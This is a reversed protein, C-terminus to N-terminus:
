GAPDPTLLEGQMRQQQQVRPTQLLPKDPQVQVQLKVLYTVGKQDRRPSKNSGTHGQTHSCFILSDTLLDCVGQWRTQKSWARIM